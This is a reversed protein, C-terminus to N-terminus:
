SVKWRDGKCVCVCVNYVDKCGETNVSSGQDYESKKFLPREM